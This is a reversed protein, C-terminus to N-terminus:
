AVGDLYSRWALLSSMLVCAFEAFDPSAAFTALWVVANIIWMVTNFRSM